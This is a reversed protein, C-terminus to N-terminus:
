PCILLLGLLLTPLSAAPIAGPRAALAAEGEIGTVESRILMALGKPAAFDDALVTSV